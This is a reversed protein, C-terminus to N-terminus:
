VVSTTTNNSNPIQNTSVTNISTLLNSRGTQTTQGILLTDCEGTDLTHFRQISDTAHARNFKDEELQNRVEPEECETVNEPFIETTNWIANALLKFHTSTHFILFFLIINSGVNHIVTLYTSVAQHLYIIQYVPFSTASEPIWAIM